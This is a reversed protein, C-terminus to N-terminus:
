KGSELTISNITEKLNAVIQTPLKFIELAEM